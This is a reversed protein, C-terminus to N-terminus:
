NATTSVSGTGITHDIEAVKIALGANHPSLTVQGARWSNGDHIAQQGEDLILARWGRRPALFDWGGNRAIALTGDQGSWENVAGIPVAYATGDIAVAPPTTVSQSRISLLALGDLRALAENVTVHKQAQSAQVLPLGLQTTNTM